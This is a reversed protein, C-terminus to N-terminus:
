CTGSLEKARGVCADVAQEVLSALGKERFVKVAEITTGGKSCVANTLESASKEPHAEMMAAGGRVTGVALMRATNEKLGHKVGARILADIFLYVYAPGSGSIGTVADLLSEDTEVATGLRSLLRMIYKREEDAFDRVDAAVVGQGLSCPTNPMCRAIKAGPFAARIADKSLGAMISVIKEPASAKLGEAVSAFSQPKVAFFVYESKQVLEANDTTTYVGFERVKEFAQEFFDSVAIKDAAVAGSRVLIGVISSAMFGCGIFGIQFNKEM